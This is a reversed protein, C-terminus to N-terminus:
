LIEFSATIRLTKSLIENLKNMISFNVQLRLAWDNIIVMTVMSKPVQFLQSLISGCGVKAMLSTMM